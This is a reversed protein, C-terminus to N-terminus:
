LSSNLAGWYPLALPRASRCHPVVRPVAAPEALAAGGLAALQVQAGERVRARGGHASRCGWGRGPHMGARTHMVHRLAHLCCLPGRMRPTGALAASRAPARAARALAPKGAHWVQRLVHASRPECCVSATCRTRGRPATCRRAWRPGSSGPCPSHAPRRKAPASRPRRAHLAPRLPPVARIRAKCERVEKSGRDRWARTAQGLLPKASRVCSGTRRACFCRPKGLISKTFFSRAYACARARTWRRRAQLALRAQRYPCTSCHSSKM